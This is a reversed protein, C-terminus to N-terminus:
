SFVGSLWKLFLFKLDRFIYVFIVSLFGLFWKGLIEVYVCFLYLFGDWLYFIKRYRKILCFALNVWKICCRDLLFCLQLVVVGNIKFLKSYILGM